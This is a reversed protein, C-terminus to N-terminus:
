VLTAYAEKPSPSMCGEFHLSGGDIDIEAWRGDGIRIARSIDCSCAHFTLRSDVIKLGSGNPNGIWFSPASAACDAVVTSRGITIGSTGMSVGISSSSLTANSDLLSFNGHGLGLDSDTLNIISTRLTMTQDDLARVSSNLMSVTANSVKFIVGEKGLYSRTFSATTDLLVFSSLLSTCTHYVVGDFNVKGGKAVFAQFPFCTTINSNRV